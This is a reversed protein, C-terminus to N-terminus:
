GAASRTPRTSGEVEPTFVRVPVAGANTDLTRNEVSAMEVPNGTLSTSWLNRFSTRVEEIPLRWQPAVTKALKEDILERLAPHLTMTCSDERSM